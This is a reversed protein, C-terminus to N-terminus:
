WGPASHWHHAATPFRAVHGAATPASWSSRGAADAPLTAAPRISFSILFLPIPTFRQIKSGMPGNGVQRHPPSRTRRQFSSPLGIVFSSSSFASCSRMRLSISCSCFRSVPALTAPKRRVASPLPGARIRCPRIPPSSRLECDRHLTSQLAQQSPKHTGLARCPTVRSPGTGRRTATVAPSDPARAVTVRQAYLARRQREPERHHEDHAAYTAAGGDSRPAARDADRGTGRPDVGGRRPPRAGAVRGAAGAGAGRPGGFRPEVCGAVGQRPCLRAAARASRTTQPLPRFEVNLVTISISNGVEDLSSSTTGTATFSMARNM